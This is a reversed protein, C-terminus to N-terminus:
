VRSAKDLLQQLHRMRDRSFHTNQAESRSFIDGGITTVAAKKPTLGFANTVQRVRAPGGFSGDHGKRQRTVLLLNGTADLLATEAAFNNGRLQQGNSFNATIAGTRRCTIQGLSRDL